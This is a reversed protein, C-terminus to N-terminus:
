SALKLEKTIKDVRLGCRVPWKIKGKHMLRNKGFECRSHTDFIFSCNSFHVLVWIFDERTAGVGGGGCGTGQVNTRSNFEAFVELWAISKQVIAFSKNLDNKEIRNITKESLVSEQVEERRRLTLFKKTQSM